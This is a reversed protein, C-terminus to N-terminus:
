KAKKEDKELIIENMKRNIMDGGNASGRLFLSSIWETFRFLTKVMINRFVINKNVKLLTQESSKHKAHFGIVKHLVLGVSLWVSSSVPSFFVYLCVACCVFQRKDMMSFLCFTDILSSNFIPKNNRTNCKINICNKPANKM